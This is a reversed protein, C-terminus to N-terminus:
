PPKQSTQTTKPQNPHNKAPKPPKQSTEFKVSSDVRGKQCPSERNKLCDGQRGIELYIERNKFIILKKFM